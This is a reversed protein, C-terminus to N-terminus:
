MLSNILQPEIQFDRPGGLTTLCQGMSECLSYPNSTPNNNTDYLAMPTTSRPTLINNLSKKIERGKVKLKILSHHLRKQSQRKKKDTWKDLTHRLTKAQKSTLTTSPQTNNLQHSFAKEIKTPKHSHHQNTVLEHSNVLCCLVNNTTNILDDIPSILISTM